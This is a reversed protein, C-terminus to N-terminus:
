ESHNLSSYFDVIWKQPLFRISAQSNLFLARYRAIFQKELKRQESIWYSSNPSYSYTQLAREYQGILGTLTMFPAFAADYEETYGLQGVAIGMERAAQLGKTQESSLKETIM